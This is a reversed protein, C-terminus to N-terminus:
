SGAHRVTVMSAPCSMIISAGSSSACANSWSIPRYGLLVIAGSPPRAPRAFSWEDDSRCDVLSAFEEVSRADSTDLHQTIVTYGEESLARETTALCRNDFDGLVVARGPGLRRACASGMGGAVTIAVVEM